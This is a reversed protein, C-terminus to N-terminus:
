MLGALAARAGSPKMQEVPTNRRMLVRNLLESNNLQPQRTGKRALVSSASTSM